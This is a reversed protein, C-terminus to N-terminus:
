VNAPQQNRGWKFTLQLGDLPLIRLCPQDLNKPMFNPRCREKSSKGPVPPTASVATNRNADVNETNKLTRVNLREPMKLYQLIEILMLM